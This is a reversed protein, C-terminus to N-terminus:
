AMCSGKGRRDAAAVILMGGKFTEREICIAITARKSIFLSLLCIREEGRPTYLFFRRPSLGRVSKNRKLYMAMGLLLKGFQL